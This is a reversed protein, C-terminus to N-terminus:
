LNMVVVYFTDFLTRLNMYKSPLSFLFKFYILLEPIALLYLLVAALISARNYTLYKHLMDYRTPLVMTRIYSVNILMKVNM